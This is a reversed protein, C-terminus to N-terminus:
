ITQPLESVKELLSDFYLHMNKFANRCNNDLCPRPYYYRRAVKYLEEATFWSKTAVLGCLASILTSYSPVPCKCSDSPTSPLPHNAILTRTAERRNFHLLYIQQSAVGGMLEADERPFDKFDITLTRTSAVKAVEELGWHSALAYVRLPSSELFRPVLMGKLSETVAEADYKDALTYLAEWMALDTIRPPLQPYLHQLFPRLTSSSEPIDITTIQSPPQTPQPLSFMAQFVTSALSLILRHVHFEKGDSSRLIIDVDSADFNYPSM